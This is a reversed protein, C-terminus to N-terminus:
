IKSLRAMSLWIVSKAVSRYATKHCYLGKHRDILKQKQEDSFM